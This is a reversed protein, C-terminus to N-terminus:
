SPVELGTNDQRLTSCEAEGSQFARRLEGELFAVFFESAEVPEGGGNLTKLALAARKKAYVSAKDEM